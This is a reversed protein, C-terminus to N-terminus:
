GKLHYSFVGQGISTYSPDTGPQAVFGASRPVFLGWEQVFFSSTAIYLGDPTAYVREPKLRAVAAPWKSAPVEDTQPSERLLAPAASALSVLESSQPTRGCAALVAVLIAIATPKGVM